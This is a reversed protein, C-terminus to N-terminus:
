SNTIFGKAFMKIKNSIKPASKKGYIQAVGLKVPM